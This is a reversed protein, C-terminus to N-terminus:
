AETGIAGSEEGTRMLQIEIRRMEDRRKAADEFRMEKAAKRM